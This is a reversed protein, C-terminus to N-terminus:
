NSQHKTMRYTVLLYIAIGGFTISSSLVIETSPKLEVFTIVYDPLVLLALMILVVWTKSWFSVGILFGLTVIVTIVTGYRGFAFIPTEILRNLYILGVFLLIPLMGMLYYLGYEKRKSLNAAAMYKFVIGISFILVLSVAVTGIMELLSYSLEGKVANTLISFSLAGLVIIVMVKFLSRWNTNMENSLQKMYEKPSEGVIHDVTKGRAEAEMLHDELEEVISHVEKEEKGSSILYLRLNELFSQSNRSLNVM